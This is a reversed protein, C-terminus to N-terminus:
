TPRTLFAHFIKCAFNEHAKSVQIMKNDYLLYKIRVRVPSLNPMVVNPGASIGKERGLSDITGLATTASLLVKPLLLRIVSKQESELKDAM